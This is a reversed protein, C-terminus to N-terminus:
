QKGSQSSTLDSSSSLERFAKEIEKRSWGTHDQLIDKITNLSTGIQREKRIWEQLEDVNYVMQAAHAHHIFFFSVLAILIIGIIIGGLFLSNSTWSVSPPSVPQRIPSPVSPQPPKTGTSLPPTNGQQCSQQEKPKYTTTGCEREDGCVRTQIGNLCSSWERCVWSEQCPSCSRIEIKRVENPNCSATDICERSQELSANCYGWSSCRWSPSCGGGSPVPSPSAPAIPLVADHGNQILDVTHDELDILDFSDFTLQYDGEEEAIFEIEAITEQGELANSCDENCLAAYEFSIIGETCTARRVTSLEQTLTADLANFIGDCNPSLESSNYRLIFQVGVAPTPINAIIPVIFPHGAYEQGEQVFIGAQSEPLSTQYEFAKGTSPLYLFLFLLLIIVVTFSIVAILSFTIYQTHIEQQHPLSSQIKEKLHKRPITTSHTQKM